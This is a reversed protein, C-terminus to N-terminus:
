TKSPDIWLWINHRGPFTATLSDSLSRQPFDFFICDYGHGHSEMDEPNLLRYSNLGERKITNLDASTRHLVRIHKSPDAENPPIIGLEKLARVTEPNSPLPGIERRGAGHISEQLYQTPGSEAGSQADDASGSAGDDTTEDQQDGLHAPRQRPLPVDSTDAPADDPADDAGAATDEGGTDATADDPTEDAGGATDEGGSDATADDPLSTPEKASEPTSATPQTDPAAEAPAAAESGGNDTTEDQQGDLHDPRQRPLPIDSTDAATADQLMM